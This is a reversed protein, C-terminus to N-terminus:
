GERAVFQGTEPDRRNFGEAVRVGFGQAMVRSIMVERYVWERRAYLPVAVVPEGTVPHVPQDEEPVNEALWTVVASIADGDGFAMLGGPFTDELATDIAELLAPRTM